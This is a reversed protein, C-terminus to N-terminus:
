ALTARVQLMGCKTPPHAKDLKERFLDTIMTSCKKTQEPIVAGAEKRYIDREISLPLSKFYHVKPVFFFSRSSRLALASRFCLLLLAFLPWSTPAPARPTPASQTCVLFVFFVM